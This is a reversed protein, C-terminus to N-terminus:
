VVNVSPCPAAGHPKVPEEGPRVEHAAAGRQDADHQERRAHDGAAPARGGVLRRRGRGQGIEGGGVREHALLHARLMRRQHLDNLCRGRAGSRAGLGVAVHSLQEHGRREEVRGLRVQPLRLRQRRVIGAPRVVEAVEVPRGSRQLIGGGGEVVDQADSGVVCHGQQRQPVHIEQLSSGLVGLRQEPRLEVHLWLRDDRVDADAAGRERRVVIRAGDPKQLLPQPQAPLGRDANVIRQREGVTSQSLDLLGFRVQALAGVDGNERFIRQHLLEVRQDLTRPRVLLAPIPREGAAVPDGGGVVEPPPEDQFRRIRGQPM